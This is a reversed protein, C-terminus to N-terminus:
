ASVPECSVGQVAMENEGNELASLAKFPSTTKAARFGQNRAYPSPAAFALTILTKRHDPNPSDRLDCPKALFWMATQFSKDFSRNQDPKKALSESSLAMEAELKELRLEYARIASANTTKILRATLWNIM